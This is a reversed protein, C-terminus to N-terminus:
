KTQNPTPPLEGQERLQARRAEIRKRILDMQQETTLVPETTAAAQAADAGSTSPSPQPQPQAMPPTNGSSRPPQGQAVPGTPMPAAPSVTQALTPAQGGTGDFVRLDLTQRGDPGDIVVSRPQIEVIRWGPAAEPADGLKVRVSEGGEKTQLIAMQLRPTILVSTLVFDFSQSQEGGEEGSIFFPEPQRNESFLPRASMEGYQALPGLREAAPAGLQPLAQVLAPDAPLPRISGGMGFLALVWALLAWGAVAILLWTRPGIADTRM